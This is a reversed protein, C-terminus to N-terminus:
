WSSGAVWLKVYILIGVKRKSLRRKDNVKDWQKYNVKKKKLKSVKISVYISFVGPGHLFAYFGGPEVILAYMYIHSQLM